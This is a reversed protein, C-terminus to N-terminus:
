RLAKLVATALGPPASAAISVRGCGHLEIVIAASPGLSQSPEEALVAKAFGTAPL